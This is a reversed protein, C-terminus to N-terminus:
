GDQWIVEFFTANARFAVTISLFLLLLFNLQGGLLYLFGVVPINVLWLLKKGFHRKQIQKEYGQPDLHKDIEESDATAFCGCKTCLDADPSNGTHCANCTWRYGVM